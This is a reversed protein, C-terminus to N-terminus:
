TESSMQYVKLDYDNTKCLTWPFFCLLCLVFSISAHCEFRCWPDRMGAVCCPDLSRKGLALLHMQIGLDCAKPPKPQSDSSNCGNSTHSLPDCHGSASTRLDKGPFIMSDCLSHCSLLDAARLADLCVVAGTCLTEALQSCPHYLETSSVVQSSLRGPLGQELSWGWFHQVLHFMDDEQPHQTYSDPFLMFFYKYNHHNKRSHKEKLIKGWDQQLWLEHTWRFLVRGSM